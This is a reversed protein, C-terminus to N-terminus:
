WEGTVLISNYFPSMSKFSYYHLWYTIEDFEGNYFPQKLMGKTHRRYRLKNIDFVYAFLDNDPKIEEIRTKLEEMFPKAETLKVDEYKIVKGYNNYIPQPIQNYVYDFVYDKRQGERRLSTTSEIVQKFTKGNQTQLYKWHGNNDYHDIRIFDLLFLVKM